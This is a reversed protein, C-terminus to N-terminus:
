RTSWRRCASRSRRRRRAEARSLAMLTFERMWDEVHETVSMGLEVPCGLLVVRSPASM